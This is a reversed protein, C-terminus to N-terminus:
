KFVEDLKWLLELAQPWGSDVYLNLIGILEEFSRDKELIEKHDALLEETFKVMSNVSSTDFTYGTPTALKTVRSVLSLAEIADYSSASRVSEIFYYATHGMLAGGSFKESVDLVMYLIPKVTNYYAQRNDYLIPIQRSSSIRENTQLGFYIDQVIDDLLRLVGDIENRNEESVEKELMPAQKQVSLKVFNLLRKCTEVEKPNLYDVFQPDIQKFVESIVEKSIFVKDLDREILDAAELINRSRFLHLTFSVYQRLFSNSDEVQIINDRTITMAKLLQVRDEDILEKWSFQGLLLSGTMFDNEESLRKYMIEWFLEKDVFKRIRWLNGAINLRVVANEDSSLERVLEVLDDSQDINLLEGIGKSANIKPTPSYAHAPTMDDSDYSSQLTVLQTLTDKLFSYKEADLGAVGSVISLAAAIRNLVTFTLDEDLTKSHQNVFALLEKSMEIPTQCANIDPKSNSYRQSFNELLSSKELIEKVDSRSVDVGKDGLWMETTYTSSSFSSTPVPEASVKGVKELIEKSAAEVLMEQPLCSLLRAIERERISTDEDGGKPMTSLIAKEIQQIQEHSYYLSATKIYNGIEYTTTESKLIAASICLDFLAIALPEPYKAGLELVRKWTFASKAYKFYTSLYDKIKPKDVQEELFEVIKDVLSLPKEKFSLDHWRYSDYDVFESLIGNVQVESTKNEKSRLRDELIWQNAIELGVKIAMESSAKLFEPFAQVLRFHNLEFDQQRNSHFRFLVSGGRETSAKSTEYHSFVVDYIRAVFEPDVQVIWKIEECLTSFYWIEFDPEEILKLVRSLVERSASPDSDYTMAVLKVGKTAGLRDVQEHTARISLIYFLLNRAAIGLRRNFNWQTEQNFELLQNVVFGFDWLLQFDLMESLKAIYDIHGNGIRISRHFRISQLLNKHIQVRRVQDTQEFVTNIEDVRYLESAIVTNPILKYFLQIHKDELLGLRWYIAWFRERNFYWLASFYYVFSPRLFFPRSLEASVFAYLDDYDESISLRSVAYDFLINHSYGLRTENVGSEELVGDSLLQVLVDVSYPHRALFKNKDVSLKRLSVLSNALKSLLLEKKTAERSGNVKVGWYERLLEVESKLVKLEEIKDVPVGVLVKELLMLFYPTRLIEQLKSSGSRFIEGLLSNVFFASQLEDDDLRTVTFRWGENAKSSEFLRLLKNSRAADYTRVSVFVHWRDALCSKAERVRELIASKMKEERAADFADFILVGKKANDKPSIRQLRDLWNEEKLNVLQNIAENTGDSLRDIPIILAPIDTASYKETLAKLLHTKGVGPDGVIVGSGSQAFRDLNELLSNRNIEM